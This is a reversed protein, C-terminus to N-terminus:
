AEKYWYGLAWTMNDWASLAPRLKNGIGYPRPRGFLTVAALNPAHFTLM